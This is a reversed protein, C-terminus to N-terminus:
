STKRGTRFINERPEPSGCHHRSAGYARFSGLGTTGGVSIRILVSFPTPTRSTVFAHVPVAPSRRSKKAHPENTTACSVIIAKATKSRYGYVIGATNGYYTDAHDQHDIPETLVPTPGAGDTDWVVVNAEDARWPDHITGRPRRERYLAAVICYTPGVRRVRDAATFWLNERKGSPPTSVRCLCPVVLNLFQPLRIPPPRLDESLLLFEELSQDADPGTLDKWVGMHHVDSHIM